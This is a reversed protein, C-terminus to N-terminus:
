PLQQTPNYEPACTLESHVAKKFSCSVKLKFIWWQLDLGTDARHLLQNRSQRTGWVCVNVLTLDVNWSKKLFERSAESSAELQDLAWECFGAETEGSKRTSRFKLTGGRLSFIWVQSCFGEVEVEEEDEEEEQRFQTLSCLLILSSSSFSNWRVTSCSSVSVEDSHLLVEIGGFWTRCLGSGTWVPSSPDPHLNLNFVM